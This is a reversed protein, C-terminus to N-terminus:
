HHRLRPCFVSCTSLSRFTRTLNFHHGVAINGTVLKVRTSRDYRSTDVLDSTICRSWNAPQTRSKENQRWHKLISLNRLRPPALNHLSLHLSKFRFRKHVPVGEAVKEWLQVVWLPQTAVRSRGQLFAASHAWVSVCCARASRGSLLPAACRDVSPCRTEGQQM